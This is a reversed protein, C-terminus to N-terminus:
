DNVFVKKINTISMLAEGGRNKSRIIYVLHRAQANIYIDDNSSIDRIYIAMLNSHNITILDGRKFKATIM